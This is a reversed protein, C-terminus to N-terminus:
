GFLVPDTRIGIESDGIIQVSGRPCKGTVGGEFYYRVGEMVPM